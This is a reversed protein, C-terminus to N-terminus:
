KFMHYQYKEMPTLSTIALALDNPMRLDVVWTGAKKARVRAPRKAVENEDSALQLYESVAMQDVEDAPDERVPPMAVDSPLESADCPPPAGNLRFLVQWAQLFLGHFLM